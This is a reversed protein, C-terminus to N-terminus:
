CPASTALSTSIDRTISTYTVYQQEQPLRQGRKAHQTRNFKYQHTLQKKVLYIKVKASNCFTIHVSSSMVLCLNSLTQSFSTTPAQSLPQIILLDPCCSDVDHRTEDLEIWRHHSLVHHFLALSLVIHSCKKSLEVSQIQHM